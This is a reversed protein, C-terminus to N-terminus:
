RLYLGNAVAKAVAQAFTAPLPNAASYAPLGLVQQAVALKVLTGTTPRPTHTLTPYHTHSHSVLVKM